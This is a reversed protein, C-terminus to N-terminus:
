DAIIINAPAVSVGYRVGVGPEDVDDLIMRRVREVPAWADLTKGLRSRLPRFHELNERERRSTLRAAADRAKADNGAPGVETDLHVGRADTVQSGPGRLREYIELYRSVARHPDTRPQRLMQDCLWGRHDEGVGDPGAGPVSDRARECLLQYFAFQQPPLTVPPLGPVVVELRNVLLTVTVPTEGLAMRVMAVVEDYNLDRTLLRPPLLHRVGFYPIDALDVDVTRANLQGGRPDTVPEGAADVLLLDRTTPHWFNHAQEAEPPDLLVHSLRDQPRGYLSLAAGAHFSMTKRGGALSVHLRRDPAATAERILRVLLNGYAAGDAASRVDDVHGAPTAIELAPCPLRLADCLEAVHAGLRDAEFTRRTRETGAVVVRSPWFVDRARPRRAEMALAYLTETVLQPALGGSIVLIDKPDDPM